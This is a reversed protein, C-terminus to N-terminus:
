ASASLTRRSRQAFNWLSERLLRRGRAPSPSVRIAAVFRRRGVPTFDARRRAAAAAGCDALYEFPSYTLTTGSCAGFGVSDISSSARAAGGGLSLSSNSPWAAV